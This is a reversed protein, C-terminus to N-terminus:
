TVKILPNSTNVGTCSWSEYKYTGGINFRNGEIVEILKWSKGRFSFTVNGINKSSPKNLPPTIIGRLTITVTEFSYSGSIVINDISILTNINSANITGFSVGDSPVPYDMFKENKYVSSM